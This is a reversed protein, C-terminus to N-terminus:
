VMSWRKPFTTPESLLKGRLCFYQLISMRLFMARIPPSNTCFGRLLFCCVLMGDVALTRNWLPGYVTPMANAPTFYVYLTIWLLLTQGLDAWHLPDFRMAKQRTEVFLTMGLPLTAFQFFFDNLALPAHVVDLSEAVVGLLFSLAFLKWFYRGAPGSRSAAGYCALICFAADLWFLCGSITPGPGRLGFALLNAIHGLLLLCVLLLWHRLRKTRDPPATVDEAM